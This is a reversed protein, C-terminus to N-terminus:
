EEPVDKLPMRLFKITKRNWTYTMLLDGDKAQILAPYSFEGPTNELTAFIRFHEGDRSVALNLPSRGRTTDNFILVIRGDRLRVADIGSNNNPLNLFRAQTWTVGDDMSDAVAIKSVLTQSRAYMRLHSGGLSVISPQIIGVTHRTGKSKADFGPDGPKPDPAPTEAEDVAPSITIPGIKAWTKGGDTSREVWAAWTKYAEFSTGSVITGDPLVLPKARIPGLLGAPLQEPKSWTLGEDNSFARRASWEGPSPGVKYYLWLTGDKTHFLVPNWSPMDKERELEVPASWVDKVCRAGWIAVDPAREHTGGFWAAMLDGNKLEVITSAHSSPFSTSGPQFIFEGVPLTPATAATSCAATAVCPSKGNILVGPGYQVPAGSAPAVTVNSETVQAEQIFMGKAAAIHINKLTLNKIPSEPLGMILAAQKAGTATLNEIDIDHFRPTHETVTQAADNSSRGTYYATIQIPTEVDQMTIDKYTFNGIDNGRGRASKIRIGQRTGRFAVREVTVNRVGGATESGISLGHGNLFTCDRITIDTSPVDPDGREVLGSKIAVNDDGTDITTHEILVHSTSFPDIGDTNPAGRGPNRITVNCVTLGDSLFVAINYQPSNQITIGEILINKSRTIDILLPRPNEPSGKQRKLQADWWVKGNGDITGQGTISVGTAHDAHLLSIRRWPADTRIPYDAMDSSGLLTAGEDLVLHTGSKLTLPGSLYMGRTFHVATNPRAACADIASQIATTDKTVGDAKAGFARPNCEQAPCIATLGVLTVLGLALRTFLSLRPLKMDM